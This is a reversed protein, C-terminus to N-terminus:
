FARLVTGYFHFKSWFIFPESGWIQLKDILKLNEPLFDWLWCFSAFFTVWKKIFNRQFIKVWKVFRLENLVVSLYGGAICGFVHEQNSDSFFMQVAGNQQGFLFKQVASCQYLLHRYIWRFRQWFINTRSAYSDKKQYFVFCNEEPLKHPIM